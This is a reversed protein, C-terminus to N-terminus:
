GGRVLRVRETGLLARLEVIAPGATSLKLSQSRLRAPAGDRGRWRLELPASGPHAMAVARVDKMVDSPLGSDSDLELSVAFQGTARLEALRTMSEVIFTPNEAEQDRRSYGGKILMPIDTKVRDSIAAWAEPFVLIETSGAFDEITLRAFEAGSKKSIQRKVSTVVGALSMQEPSWKGLQAVTHTALLECEARFPELPHGSIYFGLIAKEASLRASDSLPPSNPRTPQLPAPAAGDSPPGLLD